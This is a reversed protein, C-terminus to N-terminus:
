FLDPVTFGSYSNTDKTDIRQEVNGFMDRNTLNLKNALDKVNKKYEKNVKPAVFRDFNKFGDTLTYLMSLKYLFEERNENQYKQIETLPNGYEDKGVVKTINQLAKLRTAEDVDIGEFQKNDKFKKHLANIENAKREKEKEINKKAEEYKSNKLAEFYEINSELAEKADEIDNGTSISRETYRIAKEESFGKNIFDRFILQKRLNISQEDDGSFDQNRLNQLNNITDEYSKIEKPNIGLDLAEKLRRQSEDFRNNIEKTILETFDEPTKINGLEEDSLTLSLVGDGMLASAISSYFNNDPTDDKEKEEKISATNEKGKEEKAVSEVTATDNNFLEVVEQESLPKNNNKEKNSEEKSKDEESTETKNEENPFPSDSFINEVIKEDDLVNDMSLIGM